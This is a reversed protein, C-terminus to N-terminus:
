KAGTEFIQRPTTTLREGGNKTVVV